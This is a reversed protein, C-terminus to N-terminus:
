SRSSPWWGLLQRVRERETERQCCSEQKYCKPLIVTMFCSFSGCLSVSGEYSVLQLTVSYISQHVPQQEPSSTHWASKIHSPFEWWNLYWTTGHSDSDKHCIETWVHVWLRKKGTIFDTKWLKRLAIMIALKTFSWHLSGPLSNFVPLSWCCEMLLM